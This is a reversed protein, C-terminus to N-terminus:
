NATAADLFKRRHRRDRGCVETPEAFFGPIQARRLKKRLVTRRGADAAAVQFAHKATDLGIVKVAM